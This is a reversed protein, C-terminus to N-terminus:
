SSQGRSQTLPGGRRTSRQALHPSPDPPPDAFSFAVLPPCCWDLAVQVVACSPLISASQKRSQKRRAAINGVDRACGLHESTADLGEVGGNVSTRRDASISAKSPLASRTNYPWSDEGTVDRGVDRVELGLLDRGDRDDDAVQVGEVLGDGLNGRGCDGLGDLLDVDSADREEAGRGLVVAADHDERVGPVVVLEQGLPLTSVAGDRLVETAAHGDLHTESIPLTCTQVGTM